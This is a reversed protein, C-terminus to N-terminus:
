KTWIKQCCDGNDWGCKAVNNLRDCVKDGLMSAQCRCTHLHIHTQVHTQIHTHTYTHIHTQIHTHTYTHKHTQIHTQIHTHTYTHTHTHTYTHIHTHIYTHTCARANHGRCGDRVLAVVGDDRALNSVEGGRRRDGICLFLTFM